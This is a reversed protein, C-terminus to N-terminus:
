PQRTSMNFLQSRQCRSHHLPSCHAAAVSLIHKLISPSINQGQAEIGSQFGIYFCLMPLINLNKGKLTFAALNAHHRNRSTVFSPCPVKNRLAWTTVKMRMVMMGLLIRFLLLKQSNRGLRPRSCRECTSQGLTVAPLQM